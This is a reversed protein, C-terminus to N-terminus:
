SREDTWLHHDMGSKVMGYLFPLFTFVDIQVARKM